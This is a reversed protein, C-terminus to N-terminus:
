PPLCQEYQLYVAAGPIDGRSQDAERVGRSGGPYHVVGGGDEEKIFMGEQKVTSHIFKLM